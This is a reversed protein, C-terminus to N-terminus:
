KQEAICYASFRIVIMNICVLILLSLLPSIIGEFYDDVYYSIFIWGGFIYMFNVIHLFYRVVKPAIVKYNQFCSEGRIM